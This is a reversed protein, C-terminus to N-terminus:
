IEIASGSTKCWSTSTWRSECYCMDALEWPLQAQLGHAGVEVLTAKGHQNIHLWKRNVGALASLPASMFQSGDM